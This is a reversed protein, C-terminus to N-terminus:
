LISVYPYRSKIQELGSVTLSTNNLHIIKLRPSNRIAEVVGKDSLNYCRSIDLEHLDKCHTLIDILGADSIMTRSLNLLSLAPQLKGIEFFGDSSIRNCEIIKLEHLRPCAQLIIRLENDGIQLCRSVDLSTLKKFKQLESWFAYTLQDNNSLDLKKVKTCTSSFTQMSANNLWKCRSLYLEQIHDPLCNLYDSAKTSESLDLGILKPCENVVQKFYPSASLEHSFLLHTIEAKLKDFIIFAPDKYDLFEMTLNKVPSVIFRVGMDLNNIFEECGNQLLQLQKQHARILMNFVQNRDIYRRLVMECAEVIPLFDLSLLTDIMIWLDDSQLKWLDKIEGSTIFEDILQLIFLPVQLKLVSNKGHCENKIRRRFYSSHISLLLSNMYYEEHDTQILLDLPIFSKLIHVHKQIPTSIPYFFEYPFNQSLNAETLWNLIGKMLTAHEETWTENSCAEIFFTILEEPHMKLEDLVEEDKVFIAYKKLSPSMELPLQMFDKKGDLLM